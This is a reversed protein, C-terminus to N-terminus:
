QRGRLIDVKNRGLIGLLGGALVAAFAATDPNAYAHTCAAVPDIDRGGDVLTFAMFFAIAEGM